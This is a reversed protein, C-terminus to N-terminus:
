EFVLAKLARKQILANLYEQAMHSRSTQLAEGAPASGRQVLPPLQGGQIKFNLVFYLDSKMKGGEPFSIAGRQFWQLTTSFFQLSSSSLFLKKTKKYNKFEDRDREFWQHLISFFPLSSSFSLIVKM